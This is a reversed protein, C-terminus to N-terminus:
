SSRRKRRIKRIIAFGLLATGGIATAVVGATIITSITKATQEADEVQLALEKKAEIIQKDITDKSTQIQRKQIEQELGQAFLALEGDLRANEVQTRASQAKFFVSIGDFIPVLFVGVVTSAAANAALSMSMSTIEEVRVRKDTATQGALVMAVGRCFWAIGEAKEDMVRQRIFESAERLTPSVSRGEAKALGDVMRVLVNGSQDNDLRLVPLQGPSAYAPVGVMQLANIGGVITAKQELEKFKAVDIPRYGKATSRLIESGTSGLGVKGTIYTAFGAPNDPRDSWPEKVRWLAAPDDKIATRPDSQGRM